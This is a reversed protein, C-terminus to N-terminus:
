MATTMAFADFLLRISTRPTTRGSSWILTRCGPWGVGYHSEQSMECITRVFTGFPDAARLGTAGLCFPRNAPVIRGEVGGLSALDPQGAPFM